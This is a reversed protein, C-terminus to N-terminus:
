HRELKLFRILLVSSTPDITEITIIYNVTYILYYLINRNNTNTSIIIIISQTYKKFVFLKKKTSEKKGKERKPQIKKQISISNYSIYM